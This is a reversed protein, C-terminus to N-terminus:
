FFFWHGKLKGQSYELAPAPFKLINLFTFAKKLVKSKTKIKTFDVDPAIYWQRYRKIDARDFTINGEKDFAKNEFGGWLGDAGYGVSVNLWAPLNSKPVFSKLNFSLWYTQANYDKLLREALANGFLSQARPELRNNYNTKLASFKFQIKQKNWLLEQAAFISSGFTNAGMDAWSWGWSASQADLLEIVTLYTFGSLSGIWVAKNHPLGAWQWTATAGRSTNYATWGHGVKDVQLWEGADNFTHFSTKEYQQYWAKNLAVLTAGYISASAGGVLWQRKKDKTLTDKPSAQVFSINGTDITTTSILLSDQAYSNCLM